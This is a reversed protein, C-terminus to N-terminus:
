IRRWAYQRWQAAMALEIRDTESAFLDGAATQTLKAELATQTQYEGNHGIHTVELHYNRKLDYGVLLSRHCTEPRKEACMLAIQFGRDLGALIRSIGERYLSARALRNFQVQGAADYHADNKSRPGLEDGLWVYSIGAAKLTQQLAERHYDFFNNSYPVSRIDAIATINAYALQALFTELPKNAYGISYLPHRSDPM